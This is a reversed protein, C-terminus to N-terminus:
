VGRLENDVDEELTTRKRFNRNSRSESLRSSPVVEVSIKTNPEDDVVSDSFSVSPQVQGSSPAKKSREVGNGAAKLSNGGVKPNFTIAKPLAVSGSEEPKEQEKQLAVFSQFASLNTKSDEEDDSWELTYHTYKSPNRVHDPVSSPVRGYNSITNSRNTSVAVEGERERNEESVDDAVAFRVTRAKKEKRTVLSADSGLDSAQAAVDLGSKGEHDSSRRDQSGEAVKETSSLGGIIQPTTESPAEKPKGEDGLRRKLCSIASSVRPLKAQSDTRDRGSATRNYNEEAEKDEKLRAAAAAHNARSDRRLTGLAGSHGPPDHFTDLGSDRIERMYIRDGTGERGVALKDYEDEEEEFDLTCDRGIMRRMEQVEADEEDYDARQLIVDDAYETDERRRKPERQEDESDEDEREDAPEDATLDDRRRRRGRREMKLFREYDAATNDDSEGETDEDGAKPFRESSIPQESVSWIDAAAGSSESDAASERVATGPNQVNSGLLFGFARDVRTRFSSEM